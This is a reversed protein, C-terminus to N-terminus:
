ARNTNDMKPCVNGGAVANPLFLLYFQLSSPYASSNKRGWKERERQKLSGKGLQARDQAENFLEGGHGAQCLFYICSLRFGETNSGIIRAPFLNPPHPHTQEKTRLHHQRHDQIGYVVSWM